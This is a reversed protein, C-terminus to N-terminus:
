DAALTTDTNIKFCSVRLIVWKTVLNALHGDRQRFNGEEKNAHWFRKVYYVEWDYCIPVMSTSNSDNEEMVMM